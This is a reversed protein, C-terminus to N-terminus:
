LINKRTYEKLNKIEKNYEIYINRSKMSLKLNLNCLKYIWNNTVKIKHKIKCGKLVM